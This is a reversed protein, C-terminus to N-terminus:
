FIYPLLNSDKNNGHYGLLYQFVNEDPLFVWYFGKQGKKSFYKNSDRSVQCVCPMITITTMSVPLYIQSM